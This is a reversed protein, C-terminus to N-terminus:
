ASGELDVAATAKESDAITAPSSEDVESVMSLHFAPATPPVFLSPEPADFSSQSRLDDLLSGFLGVRNPDRRRGGMVDVSSAM